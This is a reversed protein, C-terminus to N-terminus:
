TTVAAPGTSRYRRGEMGLSDRIRASLGDLLCESLTAANGCLVVGPGSVALLLQRAGSRVLSVFSDDSRSRSIAAITLEAAAIGFSLPENVVAQALEAGLSSQRDLVSALMRAVEAASTLTAIEELGLLTPWSFLRDRVHPAFSAEPLTILRAALGSECDTVTADFLRSIEM